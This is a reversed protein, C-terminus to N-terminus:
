SMEDVFDDALGTTNVAQSACSCAKAVVNWPPELGFYKPLRAEGM